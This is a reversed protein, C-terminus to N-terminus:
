GFSSSAVNPAGVSRTAAASVMAEVAGAALGGERAALLAAGIVASARPPVAVLPRDAHAAASAAVRDLFVGRASEFVGGVSSWLVPGREWSLRRSVEVLQAALVDAAASFVAAALVDGGAAMAALKPALGAVDQRTVVGAYFAKPIDGLAAVGFHDVLTLELAHPVDSSDLSRLSRTIAARAIGFAGAEDGFLYGWGGARAVRGSADVGIVVSGSGAIAVLGPRMGLAGAWAVYADSGVFVREDPLLGQVATRVADELPGGPVVGSLGLFAGSVRVTDDGMASALAASLSARLETRGRATLVSSHPAAAAQGHLTGDSHLVACRLASQGGDVGLWHEAADCGARAARDSGDARAAVKGRPSAAVFRATIDQPRTIARGVVVAYAGADFCAALQEPTSVRGEAIVRGARSLRGVLALDPGDVSPSYPTYGALTTAVVDAGAAFARRGEDETSVDAMIPVDLERRLLELYRGPELGDLRDRDTADVAVIDAGAALLAKADELRPTIYARTRDPHKTIGIIPLRSARRVARVVSAGAVRLGLAGGIEASRALAVIHEVADLPDGPLAQCSAIVGGDVEAIRGRIPPTM